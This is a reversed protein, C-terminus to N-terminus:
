TEDKYNTNNTQTYAEGSTKRNHQRRRVGHQGASSAPFFNTSPIPAASPALREHADQYLLQWLSRRAAILRVSGSMGKKVLVGAGDPRQLRNQKLEIKVRFMPQNGILVYDDSIELLTGQLRGWETTPFADISVQARQGPQIHGIDKPLLWAEAILTKSPSVEAVKQGALLYQGPTLNNLALITGASPSRLTLLKQREILQRGETKLAACTQQRNLRESEWQGATQRLLQELNAEAYKRQAAAKELDTKSLLQGAFLAQARSEERQAEDIRTQREQRISQYQRLSEQWITQRLQPANKDKGDTNEANGGAIIWFLLADLDKCHGKEEELRQRNHNIQEELAPSRLQVIAQQTQLHQNEQVLLEEVFGALPTIVAAKEAAPRIMAPARVGVDLHIFPLSAFASTVGALLIWYIWSFRMPRLAPLTELTNETLHAPCLKKM